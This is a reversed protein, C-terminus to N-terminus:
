SNFYAAEDKIKGFYSQLKSFHGKLHWIQYHYFIGWFELFCKLLGILDGSFDLRNSGRGPAVKEVFKTFIRRYKQRV